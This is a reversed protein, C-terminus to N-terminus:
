STPKEAEPPISANTTEKTVVEVTEKTTVKPEDDVWVVRTKGEHGHIHEIDAMHTYIGISSRKSMWNLVCENNSFQVGEAVIGTGSVGTEDDKRHLQFRRHM